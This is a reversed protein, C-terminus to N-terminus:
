PAVWWVRNTYRTGTPDKSSQHFYVRTGDASWGALEDDEDNDTLLRVEGGDASVVAIETDRSYGRTGLDETRWTELAIRKSDPSVRLDQARIAALRRWQGSTLDLRGLWVDSGTREVAVLFTGDPSVEPEDFSSAGAEWDTDEEEPPEGGGTGGAGLLATAAGSAPDLGWLTGVEGSPRRALYVRKGDPAWAVGSRSEGEAAELLTRRDTGDARIIDLSSPCRRCTRYWFVVHSGDPSVQPSSFYESAHSLLETRKGTSLEFLNVGKSWGRHDVVAAAWRGDASVSPFSFVNYVEAILARGGDPGVLLLQENGRRLEYAGKSQRVDVYHPEALLVLGGDPRVAVLYEEAFYEGVLHREARREGKADHERATDEEEQRRERESRLHAAARFVPELKSAVALEENSLGAAETKLRAVAPLATIAASLAPAFDPLDEAVELRARDDSAAALNFVLPDLAATADSAAVELAVEVTHESLESGTLPMVRASRITGTIVMGAGARQAAVRLATPDSAGALAELLVEDGPPVVTLGLKELPKVMATAVRESVRDKDGWFSARTGDAGVSHVLVAVRDLPAVVRGQMWWWGGAAGALVVVAAVLPWRSRRPTWEAGPSEM